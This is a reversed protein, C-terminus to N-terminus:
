PSRKSDLEVSHPNNPEDHWWVRVKIDTTNDANATINTCRTYIAQM